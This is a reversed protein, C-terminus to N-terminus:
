IEDNGWTCDYNELVFVPQDECQKKRPFRGLVKWGALLKPLRLPGYIRHANWVIEDSGVPVALFLLGKTKIVTKLFRMAELDGDPNLPDGYRGLGDHEFSSISLAADFQRPSRKFEAVTIATLRSDMMNIENYEITVPKGGYFLVISEYAPKTSGIVAVDCGKVPYEDLAEYLWGTTAGYRFSIRQKIRKFYKKVQASTYTSALTTAEDFYWERVPIRGGMTYKGRLHAPMHRPPREEQVQPQNKRGYAYLYSVNGIGALKYQALYRFEKPWGLAHVAGIERRSVHAIYDSWTKDDKTAQSQVIANVKQFVDTRMVACWYPVAFINHLCESELRLTWVENSKGRVLPDGGYFAEIIAGDGELAKVAEEILPKDTKIIVDDFLLLFYKTTVANILRYISDMFGSGAPMMEYNANLDRLSKVLHASYVPPSEDIILHRPRQQGMNSYYSSLAQRFCKAKQKDIKFTSLITLLNEYQM